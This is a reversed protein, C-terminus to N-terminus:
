AIVASRGARLSLAEAVHNHTVLGAGELDAMTQAVQKVKNLGRASLAGERLKNALSANADSNLPLQKSGRAAARARAAAVRAAVAASPEGPTGSLLDEANPRSVPVVLDFRDLLPASIRRRYRARIVVSCSCAGDFVGEGCPCPNMAAVLLFEAPFTASGGARNVRIVGEELPQRLSELAAV